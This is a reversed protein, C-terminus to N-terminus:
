KDISSMLKNKISAKEHNRTHSQVKNKFAEHNVTILQEIDKSSGTSENAM